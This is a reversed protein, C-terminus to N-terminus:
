KYICECDAIVAGINLARVCYCKVVSWNVEASYLRIHFPTQRQSYSIMKLVNLGVLPKDLDYHRSLNVVHLSQQLM